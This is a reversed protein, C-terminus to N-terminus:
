ESFGTAVRLPRLMSRKKSQHAQMRRLIDDLVKVAKEVHPGKNLMVCEARGAIAADSIEARSPMGTKTLGELVQTAWIVPLHAAECMWLIEEQVEALREWGCEVALDGRAIMVGDCPFKMTALLLSPLQEFAQQTEIKLVMGLREGGLERLRADLEAVHEATRVFSYGVMDAHAVVFALDARDKVTLASLRLRSDPLNIGKDGRLTAGGARAQTIQIRLEDDGVARLVGGIKGDDLWVREGARVDEFIEPLTCGIRAPSLLRGVSDYSAPRGPELSRTLVLTDGVSLELVREIPPLAPLRSRPLRRRGRRPELVIGGILYATRRAEGWAGLASREVIRIRRRAGRADKFDLLDGASLRQLFTRALPVLADAPTPPKSPADRPTFWVRAPAVVRGLADRYPRVKVVGPGPAVPGTRLKPGALDMLVRCRRHTAEEAKHLHQLIREWADADDHACNIRVCDTGAEVLAHVLAYDDAAESPMTVMIRVSRHAPPPGLLATANAELRAGGGHPAPTAGDVRSELMAIVADLNSLVHSEARGLSSLGLASLREQLPRLDHRRLAVYHLLNEGGSRHHERLDGLQEKHDAALALMEERLDRLAALLSSTPPSALIADTVARSGGDPFTMM